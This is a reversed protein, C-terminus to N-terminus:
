GHLFLRLLPGLQGRIESGEIHRQFLKFRRERDPDNKIDEQYVPLHVGHHVVVCKSNINNEDVYSHMSFRSPFLMGDLHSLNFRVTCGAIHFVSVIKPKEMMFFSVIKTIFYSRAIDHERNVSIIDPKFRYILAALQMFGYIKSFGTWSLPYVNPKDKLINKHLFTNKRLALGTTVGRKGLWDMIDILHYEIGGIGSFNSVNSIYLIKM